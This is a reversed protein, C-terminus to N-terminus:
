PSCQVAVNTCLANEVYTNMASGSDSYVDINGAVYNAFMDGWQERQAGIKDNGSISMPHQYYLNANRNILANIDLFGNKDQFASGTGIGSSFADNKGSINNLVHAFEHYINIHSLNNTVYFDVTSGHTYGYYHIGDPHENLTFTASGIISHLKGDLAKNLNSLASDVQRAYTLDWNKSNVKKGWVSIQWDDGAGGDALTVGYDALMREKIYQLEGAKSYTNHLYSGASYAYTCSATECWWADHGTPDVYNMPSNNVYAYRDLGQVGPPIITDAQAFRGISSDYWRANYFALGFSGAYSKQGTYTYDTPTTGANYRVEGWPTYRMESVVNGSADTTLSTSGLHDGLLFNLTGNTRVAM